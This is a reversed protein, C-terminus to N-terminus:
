PHLTNYIYEDYKYTKYFGKLALMKRIDLPIEQKKQIFEAVMTYDEPETLLIVDKYNKAAARILSVGGIDIYELLEEEALNAHSMEEFPYLNVVVIDITTAEIKLLDEMDSAIDRRALIGGFIKPHLTKVRGGMIEPYGTYSSIPTIPINHKKLLKATGGTSLITIGNQHFIKALDVINEKNSVSILATKYM